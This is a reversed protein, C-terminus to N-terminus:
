GPDSQEGELGLGEDPSRPICAQVAGPCPRGQPFAHAGALEAPAPDDGVWTLLNVYYGANRAELLDAKPLIEEEWIRREIRRNEEEPWSEDPLSRISFRVKGHHSAALYAALDGQGNLLM